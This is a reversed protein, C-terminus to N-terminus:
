YTETATVIVPQSVQDAVLAVSMSCTEMVIVTEPQSVQDAVYAVSTSYTETAIVIEPQSILVDVITYKAQDMVYEVRM